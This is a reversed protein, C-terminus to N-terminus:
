VISWANIGRFRELFKVTAWISYMLTFFLFGGINDLLMILLLQDPWLFLRLIGKFLSLIM